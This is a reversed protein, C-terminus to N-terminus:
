RAAKRAVLSDAHIPEGVVRRIRHLGWDTYRNRLRYFTRPPLVLTMGLVASQFLHYGASRDKYAVRYAAQEVRFTEWPMGGEVSLHLRKAELIRAELAAHIVDDAIGLERLRVPLERALCMLASAKRSAKKRDFAGYQYLNGSHFRYNTLPQDIVMAGSIAVALTALYEDAEIVIAEPVPLIRELVARRIALRSTGMFSMLERFWGGEEVSQFSCTYFRDPVNEFKRRGAEDVEYLGNGVAGIEPQAEFVELVSRLKGKEWWDDADLFAVIEGHCEPIGANFASAQGGNTKQVLRVRPAFQRVIEATGDTSGDDVVVIEVDEMSMDQELVSSIAQAIFREHDYTDILVSIFPKAM